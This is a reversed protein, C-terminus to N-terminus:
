AAQPRSITLNSYVVETNDFASLGVAGTAYSSDVVHSVVVGNVSFDFASGVAKVELINVGSLGTRISSAAKYDQLRTCSKNAPCKWIVSKGNSDIDFEYYGDTNSGRVVIGYPSLTSGKIQQAQVSVDVNTLDDTPALCIVSNLVHLGDSKLVCDGNNPWGTPQGKLSNQYIPATATERASATQTAQVKAQNAQANKGIAYLGAIAVVGVVVVIAVVIGVILGVSLKKKPPAPPQGYGSYPAAGPYAPPIETAVGSGVLPGTGPASAAYGPFNPQGVPPYPASPPAGAPQGAGQQGYWGGGTGGPANPNPPQQYYHHRETPAEAWAACEWSEYDGCSPEGFGARNRQSM